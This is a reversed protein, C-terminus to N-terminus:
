EYIHAGAFRALLGTRPLTGHTCTEASPYSGPLAATTLNPSMRVAVTLPPRRRPRFRSPLLFRWLSYERQRVKFLGLRSHQVTQSGLTALSRVIMGDVFEHLPIAVLWAQSEVAADHEPISNM